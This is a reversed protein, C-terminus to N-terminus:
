DHPTHNSRRDDNGIRREGFLKYLEAKMDSVAAKLDSSNVFEKQNEKITGIVVLMETVKTKLVSWAKFIAYLYGIIFIIITIVHGINLTFKIEM